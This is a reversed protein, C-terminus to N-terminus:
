KGVRFAAGIEVIRLPHAQKGSVRCTRHPLLEIAGGGIYRGDVKRGRSMETARPRYLNPDPRPLRGDAHAWVVLEAVTPAEQYRNVYAALSTIFEHQRRNILGPTDRLVAYQAKSVARVRKRPRAERVISPLLPLQM